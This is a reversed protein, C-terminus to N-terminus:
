NSASPESKLSWPKPSGLREKSLWDFVAKAWIERGEASPHIKDRGRPLDPVLASSDLSRCPAVNAEIVKMLGTDPKWLPPLIWVCPRGGLAGVLHKIAKVREEPKPIEVENAGLTVLVLDPQYNAVYKPIEPGYSWNPIYSATKFELASRLGAAKFLKGLEGGLAAAFSDGVQLVLTGKPLPEIPAHVPAAAVAAAPEPAPPAPVPAVAAPPAVSAIPAPEAPTAAPPPAAGGCAALVSLSLLDLELGRWRRSKQM